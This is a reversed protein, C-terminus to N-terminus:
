KLGVYKGNLVKDLKSEVKAAADNLLMRGVVKGSPLIEPAASCIM